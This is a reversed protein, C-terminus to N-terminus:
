KQVMRQFVSWQKSVVSTISSIYFNIRRLHINTNVPQENEDNTLYGMISEPTENLWSIVYPKVKTIKLDSERLNAILHQKVYQRADEEYEENIVGYSEKARKIAWKEANYEMLYSYLRSGTSVHGIEHLGVLFSWECVPIPITIGRTEINAEYDGGDPNWDCWKRVKTNTIELEKRIWGVYPKKSAERLKQKSTSM